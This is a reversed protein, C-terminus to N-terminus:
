SKFVLLDFVLIGGTNDSVKNNYVDAYYSNEIEIGAVNFKAINNRVIINESQGVYIGADSAGIAVCGQIFVNKSQVPYLGYAGNNTNPGNTWETRINIFYIGNANVVKIGDGVANIISFDKLIVEDSSVLLGQAGSKQSSFDLITKDMGQGMITVHSQNLSLGDTFAYTGERLLITDGPKALILLEQLEEQSNDGPSIKYIEAHIFESSISISFLLISLLRLTKAKYYKTKM